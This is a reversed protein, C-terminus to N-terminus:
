RQMSVIWWLLLCNVSWSCGKLRRTRQVSHRVEAAQICTDAHVYRSSIGVLSTHQPMVLRILIDYLKSIFAEGAEFVCALM